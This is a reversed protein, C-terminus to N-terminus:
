HGHMNSHHKHHGSMADSGHDSLQADFWAHLARVLPESQTRYNLQAGGQVDTYVISVQGPSAAKLAALGPMNAGHIHAPGSFDGKLFQTQIDQLHARILRIQHADRMDKVVVVQVGGDSTKTFLHSTAKLQFPMVEAGHKAVEAQRTADAAVSWSPFSASILLMPILLHIKM